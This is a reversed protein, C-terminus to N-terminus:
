NDEDHERVTFEVDVVDDNPKRGQPNSNNQYTRYEKAVKKIRRKLLFRNVLYLVLLVPFLYFVIKVLGMVIFVVILITLIGLIIDM